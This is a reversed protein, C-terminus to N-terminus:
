WRGNERCSEPKHVAHALDQITDTSILRYSIHRAINCTDSLSHFLSVTDAIKSCVNKVRFKLDMGLHVDKLASFTFM